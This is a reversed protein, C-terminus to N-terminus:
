QWVLLHLCQNPFIVFLHWTILCPVSSVDRGIKLFLKRLCTSRVQRCSEYQLPANRPIAKTPAKIQFTAYVRTVRITIILYYLLLHVALYWLAVHVVKPKFAAYNWQFKLASSPCVRENAFNGFILAVHSWFWSTKKPPHSLCFDCPHACKKYYLIPHACCCPPWVRFPPVSTLRPPGGAPSPRPATRSVPPASFFQHFFYCLARLPLALCIVCTCFFLPALFPSSTNNGFKCKFASLVFRTLYRAFCRSWFSKWVSNIKHVAPLKSLHLCWGVVDACM